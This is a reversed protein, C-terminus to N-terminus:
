QQASKRSADDVLYSILFPPISSSNPRMAKLVKYKAVEWLGGLYNRKEIDTGDGDELFSKVIDRSAILTQSIDKLKDEGGLANKYQLGKDPHLFLSAAQFALSLDPPGTNDPPWCSIPVGIAYLFYFAQPSPVTPWIFGNRELHNTTMIDSEPNFIESITNTLGRAHDRLNFIQNRFELTRAKLQEFTQRENDHTAQLTELQAIGERRKREAVEERYKVRYQGHLRNVMVSDAEDQTMKGANVFGELQAKLTRTEAKSKEYAEHNRQKQKL